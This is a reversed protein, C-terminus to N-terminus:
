DVSYSENSEPFATTVWEYVKQDLPYAELFDQRLWGGEKMRECGKILWSELQIPGICRHGVENGWFAVARGLVVEWFNFYLHPPLFTPGYKFTFQMVWEVLVAKADPTSVDKVAVLGKKVANVFDDKTLVVLPFDLILAKAKIVNMTDVENFHNEQRTKVARFGEEMTEKALAVLKPDKTATFILWAGGFRQTVKNDENCDMTGQVVAQAKAVFDEFDKVECDLDEVSEMNLLAAFDEM